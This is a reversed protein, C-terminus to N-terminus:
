NGNSCYTMAVSMTTFVVLNIIMYNQLDSTLFPSVHSELWPSPLTANKRSTSPSSGGGQREWSRSTAQIGQNMIKKWEWLWCHSASDKEQQMGRICVWEGRESILIGTISNPGSTYELIIAWRLNLQCAVKIVDTVKIGRAMNLLINVPEPTLVQVEDVLVSISVSTKHSFM